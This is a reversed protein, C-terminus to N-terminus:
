PRPEPGSWSETRAFATGIVAGLLIVAAPLLLSTGMAASLSDHRAVQAGMLAAVAASGIVAGVQRMTNYVSSGAGALQPDLNRTAIMSLPGWMMANGLGTVVSIALMWRPDTETTTLLAMLVVSIGILAMGSIAFPKPPLTNTETVTTAPYTVTTTVDKPPQEVTRTVTSPPLTVTQTTQTAPPTVWETISGDWKPKEPNLGPQEIPVIRQFTKTRNVSVSFNYNEPVLITVYEGNSYKKEFESIKSDNAVIRYQLAGPGTDVIKFGTIQEFTANNVVPTTGSEREGLDSVERMNKYIAGRVTSLAALDNGLLARLAIEDTKIAQIRALSTDGEAYAKYDAQLKKVTNIAGLRVDESIGPGDGVRGSAGTLKRPEYGAKADNWGNGLGWDVCWGPGLNTPLLNISWDSGQSKPANMYAALEDKDLKEYKNVTLYSDDGVAASATPAVAAVSGLVATTSILATM